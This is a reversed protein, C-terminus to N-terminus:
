APSGNKARQDRIALEFLRAEAQLLFELPNVPEKIANPVKLDTMVTAVRELGTMLATAMSSVPTGREIPRSNMQTVLLRMVPIASRVRHQLMRDDGRDAMSNRLHLLRSHKTWFGFYAEVFQSARQGLEADPWYERVLHVYDSEVTAMVPELVALVLETLDAFYLYITGMRLSARRAVESLTILGDERPEALIEQAAAIIRDRTDRGKRGLRQGNLNHSLEAAPRSARSRRRGAAATASIRIVEAGM